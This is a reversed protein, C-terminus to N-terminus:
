MTQVLLNKVILWNLTTILYHFTSCLRYFFCSTLLIRLLLEDVNREIILILCLIWLVKKHNHLSASNLKFCVEVIVADGFGFGCAPLDDGGFTSLLRDYRGGGCIARLKGGRDFGQFLMKMILLFRFLLKWPMTREEILSTCPCSLIFVVKILKGIIEM